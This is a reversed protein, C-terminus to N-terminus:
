PLPCILNVHAGTELWQRELKGGMQQAALATLRSGFGPKPELGADPLFAPGGSEIWALALKPSLQPDDAGAAPRDGSAGASIQWEITVLGHEVSLAGYKTANTALEHILLGIPTIMRAPLLVEPGTIRVREGDGMGYPRMINGIVDGLRSREELGMGQSSSHALSLAHVRSKIDDLVVATPAQKRGSITIISLVVSFLNKVRHNLERALLQTEDNAARLAALQQAEARAWARHREGRLAVAVLAILGLGLIGVLPLLRNGLAEARDFAAQRQHAANDRLWTIERRLEDMENQGFNTQVLALASAGLGQRELNVTHDLEGIKANVLEDAHAVRQQEEDSSREAIRDIDNLVSTLQAKARRYPGLYAANNTLLYGRQGTEADLMTEMLSNLSLLSEDQLMVEQRAQRQAMVTQAILLFIAIYLVSLGILVRLMSGRLVWARAREFAAGLRIARDASVDDAVRNGERTGQPLAPM